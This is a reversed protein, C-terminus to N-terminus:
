GAMYEDTYDIGWGKQREEGWKRSRDTKGIDSLIMQALTLSLRRYEKTSNEENIYLRHSIPSYLKLVVKNLLFQLIRIYKGNKM